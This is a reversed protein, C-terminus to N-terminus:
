SWVALGYAVLLGGLFLHFGRAGGGGRADGRRCVYGARGIIRIFFCRGFWTDRSFCVGRGSYGAVAIFHARVVLVVCLWVWVSVVSVGYFVPGKFVGFVTGFSFSRRSSSRFRVCTCCSLSVLGFPPGFWSVMALFMQFLFFDAYPWPGAACM